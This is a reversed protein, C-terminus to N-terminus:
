LTITTFNNNEESFMAINGIRVEQVGNKLADFCNDLKPLMGNAILGDELLSEYTKLNINQIM